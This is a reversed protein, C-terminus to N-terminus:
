RNNKKNYILRRIPGMKKVKQHEEKQRMIEETVREAEAEQEKKHNDIVELEELKMILTMVNAYEITEKGNENFPSELKKQKKVLYDYFRIIQDDPIVVILHGLFDAPDAIMGDFFNLEANREEWVTELVSKSSDENKM